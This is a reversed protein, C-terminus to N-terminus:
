RARTADSDNKLSNILGSIKRAVLDAQGLLSNMIDDGIWGRRQMITLLTVTEYLSGRAIYLFQVFEKRSYRGKGEAINMAISTSAAEIQEILRYHQRTTQLNETLNIVADAFEVAIQWVDLKQFAFEM